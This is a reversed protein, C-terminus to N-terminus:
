FYRKYSRTPLLLENFYLNFKSFSLLFVAFYYYLLFPRHYNCFNALGMNVGSVTSPEEYMCIVQSLGWLWRLFYLHLKPGRDYLFYPDTGSNLGLDLDNRLLSNVKRYVEELSPTNSPNLLPFSFIGISKKVWGETFSLLWRWEFQPWQGWQTMPWM